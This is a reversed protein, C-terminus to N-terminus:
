CVIRQILEQLDEDLAFGFTQFPILESLQGLRDMIREVAAANYYPIFATQLIKSVGELPELRVYSEKGKADLFFLGKLRVGEPAFLSSYFHWPSGFLWFEGDMFRLVVQDEGFVKVSKDESLIRALTSKGAHSHGIFAYGDEGIRVAAAHLILDGYLGLWNVYFVIELEKPLLLAEPDAEFDGLLQGCSFDKQVILQRYNPQIPNSFVLEQESKEWLEWIQTRTILKDWQTERNLKKQIVELTLTRSFAPFNENGAKPFVLFPKPNPITFTRLADTESEFLLFYNAVNLGRKPQGFDSAKFTFREDERNIM